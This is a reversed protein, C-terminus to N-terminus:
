GESRQNWMFILNKREINGAETLEIEGNERLTVYLTHAKKYPSCGCKSCEIVCNYGITNNGSEVGKAIFRAKGGCFPCPKLENEKM